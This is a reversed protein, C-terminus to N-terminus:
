RPERRAQCYCSSTLQVDARAWARQFRARLEDAERGLGRGEACLLLGQLSWGNEPWRKLDELYV